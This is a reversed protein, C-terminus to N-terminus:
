IAILIGVIAFANIFIGVIGLIMGAKALKTGKHKKQERSFYIAAASFLLAAYPMLFAAVGVIGWALSWKGWAGKKKGASKRIFHANIWIIAAALPSLILVAFAVKGKDSLKDDGHTLEQAQKEDKPIDPQLQKEEKLVAVTFFSLSDVKGYVINKVTDVYYSNVKNLTATGGSVVGHFFGLDKESFGEPILEPDYTIGITIPGISYDGSLRIAQPTSDAVEYIANHIAVIDMTTSLKDLDEDSFIMKTIKGKLQDAYSGTVVKAGWVTIDQPNSSVQVNFGPAWSFEDEYIVTSTKFSDYLDELLSPNTIRSEEASLEKNVFDIQEQTLDPVPVLTRYAKGGLYEHPIQVLKPPAKAVNVKSDASFGYCTLPGDVNSVKIQREGIKLFRITPSSGSIAARAESPCPIEDEVAYGGLNLRRAELVRWNHTARTSRDELSTAVYKFCRLQKNEVKITYFDRENAALNQKTLTEGTLLEKSKRLQNITELVFKDTILSCSVESSKWEFNAIERYFKQFIDYIRKQEEQKEKAIREQELKAALDETAKTSTKGPTTTQTPYSPSGSPTQLNYLGAAQLCSDFPGWCNQDTSDDGECRITDGLDTYRFRGAANLQSICYSYIRDVENEYDEESNGSVINDCYSECAYFFDLKEEHELVCKDRCTNYDTGSYSQHSGQAFPLSTILVILFMIFKKSMKGM